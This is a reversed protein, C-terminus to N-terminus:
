FDGFGMHFWSASVPFIDSTWNGTSETGSRAILDQDELKRFTPYISGFAESWFYETSESMVKKLQYGSAAGIMKLLGLIAYQTKLTAM